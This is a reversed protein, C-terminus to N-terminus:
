IFRSCDNVFFFSSILCILESYHEQLRRLHCSVGKQGQDSDRAAPLGPNTELTLQEDSPVKLDINMMFEQHMVEEIAKLSINGTKDFNGGLAVFALVQM